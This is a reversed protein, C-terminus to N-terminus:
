VNKDVEYQIKKVAEDCLQRSKGNNFDIKISIIFPFDASYPYDYKCIFVDTLEKILERKTPAEFVGVNTKATYIM